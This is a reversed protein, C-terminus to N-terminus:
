RQQRSIIMMRKRPRPGTWGARGCDLRTQVCVCRCEVDSRCSRCALAIKAEDLRVADSCARVCENEAYATRVDDAHKQSMIHMCTKICVELLGHGDIWGDM